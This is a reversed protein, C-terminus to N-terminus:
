FRGTVIMFVVLALAPLLSFTILLSEKDLNNLRYKIYEWESMVKMYKLYPELYSQYEQKDIFRQQENGFVKFVGNLLVGRQGVLKTQEIPLQTVQGQPDRILVDTGSIGLQKQLNFKLMLFVPVLISTLLLWMLLLETRGEEFGETESLGYLVISSVVHMVPLLWMVYYLSKKDAFWFPEYPLNTIIREGQQDSVTPQKAKLKSEKFQLYGGYLLGISLLSFFGYMIFGAIQHYRTKHNLSRTMVEHLGPVVVRSYRKEALDFRILALNNTDQFFVSGNLENLATADEEFSFDFEALAKKITLQKILANSKSYIFIDAQDMDNEAITLWIQEDVIAFSSPFCKRSSAETGFIKKKTSCTEQELNDMLITPKDSLPVDGLGFAKLAKHNTDMVWLVSEQVTIQNPFKLVQQGGVSEPMSDLIAGEMDLRYLTHQGSNAFYVHQHQSDFALHTASRAIPLQKSFLKCYMTVLHCKMLGEQTSYVDEVPKRFFVLVNDWFSNETTRAYVLVENRNIFQIDGSLRHIGAQKLNVQRILQGENTFEYLQGDSTPLTLTGWDTRKLILPYTRDYSADLAWFYGGLLLLFPLLITVIQKVTLDRNM